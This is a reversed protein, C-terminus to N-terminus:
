GVEVTPKAANVRFKKRENFIKVKLCRIQEHEPLGDLTNLTVNKLYTGLEEKGPLPGKATEGDEFYQEFDNVVTSTDVESWRRYQRIERDKSKNGRNNSINVTNERLAEQDIRHKKSVHMTDNTTSINAKPEDFYLKRKSNSKKQKVKPELEEELFESESSSSGSSSEDTYPTEAGSEPSEQGVTKPSTTTSTGRVVNRILSCIYLAEEAPPVQYINEHVESSHGFHSLYVTRQRDTMTHKRPMKSAVYHRIDTATIPRSLRAEDCLNRIEHNGSAYSSVSGITAFVYPNERKIGVNERFKPDMMLKVKLVLDKEICVDVLTALNKGPVFCIKDGPLRNANNADMPLWTDEFGENAEEITLQAVEGGRRSNEITLLVYLSRRYKCFNAPISSESMNINKLCESVLLQVDNESPLYIPKRSKKQRRKLIEQEDKKFNTSWERRFHTLFKEAEEANKEDQMNTYHSIMCDCGSKISYGYSLTMASSKHGDALQRLATILKSHNRRYFMDQVHPIESLEFQEKFQEFIKVLNRMLTITRRLRRLPKAKGIKHYLRCGCMLILPEKKVMNGIRDNRIVTLVDQQFGPDTIGILLTTQHVAKPKGKSPSKLCDHLHFSNRGLFAKCHECIVLAENKKSKSMRARLLDQGKKACKVNHEYIGLKRMKHVEKVRKQPSLGQLKEYEEKHKRQLHRGLRTQPIGCHLCPRAPRRGTIFTFLIFNIYMGSVHDVYNIIYKEPTIAYMGNALVIM